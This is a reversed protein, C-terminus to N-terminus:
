AFDKIFERYYSTFNLFKRINKINKPKPQSLIKNVKEKKMKIGNPEIIAKLFGIKQIKWICKKLKVYLNNENLRKLVKKVIKNYGKETKTGVLVDDVFVAVKEKNIINKLIENMIAQFIAPLNMIGFFM